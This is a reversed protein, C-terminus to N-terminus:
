LKRLKKHWYKAKAKIEREDLTLLKRKKMLQKGAVWVDTVQHRNAAYVVQSAPHFLPQTEIEDLRIAIFDAAKGAVLSGTIHDIGIAKAGNLTAMTITEHAPLSTSNRTSLKSLFAASRMEDIMDLDNNSAAGDTGLAVNIGRYLLDGVPCIGSALKMNSQPCHVVHPKCEEMIAIDEDNIQTMHMAILNSNVMGINHLRRLPRQKTEAISMNIEDETEQMHINIKIKYKESMEKVRLLTPEAVTYISQPAMTTTIFPHNKYEQYFEEGRSFYEDMNKAWATPFDIVTIGISARVGATLAAEATAQLFFYMDNFCTTGSRIMEAIALHSADRVFEDSVWKREAPWIYNNLWNMLALDDAMGRFYNMAAHTHTNVFGPMIVHASFRQVNTSTYKEAVKRSALIDKIKGNQIILAQNELTEKKPEGTILWRAHIISDVTEM